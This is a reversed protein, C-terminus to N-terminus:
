RQEYTRQSKLYKVSLFFFNVDTEGRRTINRALGLTTHGNDFDASQHRVHASTEFSNIRWEVAYSIVCGGHPLGHTVADPITFM